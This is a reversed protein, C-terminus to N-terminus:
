NGPKEIGTVKLQTVIRGCEPIYCRLTLVGNEMSAQLPASMHCRAHLYLPGTNDECLDCGDPKNKM